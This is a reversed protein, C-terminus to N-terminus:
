FCFLRKPTDWFVKRRASPDPLLAGALRILPGVDQREPARLYPWDSAWMCCDPTFADLLAGVFPRADDFPFSMGSFKPYGSIKVFVRGTDALRLLAAFAAGGIGADIAPRGCHDILVRVPIDYIAQVFALFQDKECQFQIFMDLEALKKMLNGCDSYYDTGHFSPNLAIGLVGKDKLSKLEPLTADMGAIAIGKFREPYREIADLMCRNDPGYGSNPQVLLTHAVAFSEMVEVLQDANGMEQGAPKYANAEGYPFRKPDLVHAHCDIKPEDFIQM